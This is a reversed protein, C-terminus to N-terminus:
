CAVTYTGYSIRELYLSHECYSKFTSEVLRHRDLIPTPVTQWTVKQPTCGKVCAIVLIGVIILVIVFGLCGTRDNATLYIVFKALWRGLITEINTQSSQVPIEPYGSPVKSPQDSETAQAAEAKQFIQPTPVTQTTLKAQPKQKKASKRICCIANELEVIQQLVQQRVKLDNGIMLNRQYTVLLAQYQAEIKLQSETGKIGLIQYAQKMTM